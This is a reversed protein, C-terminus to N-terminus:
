GKKKAVTLISITKHESFDEGQMGYQGVIEFGNKILMGRLEQATYIQLSFKSKFMNPKDANKQIMYNDYSTLIGKARDITSCQMTQIQTDNIKKHVYWAFDAVVSDTMANLNLIDFVYIGGDKLNKHINKMAIKFSSKTLHGVANFITIVADFCGIQLTRMDGEIFRVDVKEELARGRAM